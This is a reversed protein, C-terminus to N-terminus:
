VISHRAICTYSPFLSYPIVHELLDLRITSCNVKKIQGCLPLFENWCFDRLMLKFAKDLM